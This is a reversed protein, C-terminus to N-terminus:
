DGQRSANHLPGLPMTRLPQGHLTRLAMKDDIAEIPEWGSGGPGQM